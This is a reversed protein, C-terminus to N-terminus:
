DRGHKIEREALLTAMTPLAGWTRPDPGVYAIVATQTTAHEPM